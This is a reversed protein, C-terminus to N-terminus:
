HLTQVGRVWTPNQFFFSTPWGLSQIESESGCNTHGSYFRRKDETKLCTLLVQKWLYKHTHVRWANRQLHTRHEPVLFDINALLVSESVEILPHQHMCTQQLARNHLQSWPVFINIVISAQHVKKRLLQEHSWTKRPKLVGMCDNWNVSLIWIIVTHLFFFLTVLRFHHLPIWYMM